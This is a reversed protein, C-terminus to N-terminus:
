ERRSGQHWLSRWYRRDTEYVDIPDAEADFTEPLIGYRIMERVYHRSPRFGPMDFRKQGDLREGARAIEALAKRYDADSTDTFVDAPRADEKSFSTKCLGLGGAKKALPALLVLSQEPNTLNYLLDQRGPPDKQHCRACRGTFM